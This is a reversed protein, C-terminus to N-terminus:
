RYRYVLNDTVASFVSTVNAKWAGKRLFSSSFICWGFLLFLDPVPIWFALSPSVATFGPVLWVSGAWLVPSLRRSFRSGRRRLRTGLSFICHLPTRRHGCSTSHRLRSPGRWHQSRIITWSRSWIGRSETWRTPSFSFNLKQQFLHSCSIAKM